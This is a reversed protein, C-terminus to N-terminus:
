LRSKESSPETLALTSGNHFTHHLLVPAPKQATLAQQRAVRLRESLDHSLEGSAQTLLGALQQGLQDLLEPKATDTKNM